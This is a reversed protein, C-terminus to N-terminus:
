KTEWGEFFDDGTRAYDPAIVGIEQLTNFIQKALDIEKYSFEALSIAHRIDKRIGHIEHLITLIVDTQKM